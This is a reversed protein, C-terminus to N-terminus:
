TLDQHHVAHHRAARIGECHQSQHHLLVHIRSLSEPVCTVDRQQVESGERESQDPHVRPRVLQRGQLLDSSVFVVCTVPDPSLASAGGVSGDWQGVTRSPNGDRINLM